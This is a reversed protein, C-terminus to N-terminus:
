RKANNEGGVGLPCFESTAGAGGYIESSPFVFGRRKALSTLKEAVDEVRAATKVLRARATEPRPARRHPAGHRHRSRDRIPPVRPPPPRARAGAHRRAPPAGRHRPRQRAPVAAVQARPRVACDPPSGGGLVGWRLGRLDRRGGGAGVREDRRCSAYPLARLRGARSPIRLPRAPASRVM